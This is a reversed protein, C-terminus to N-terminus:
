CHSAQQPLGGGHIEKRLRFGAAGATFRKARGPVPLGRRSDRQAAPVLLGRRSDRQAASVPLGRRSDRQVASVPLGATFRKACGSGAAGATFRKCLRFGAAGATFRKARLGSGAVGGHIEQVASVPLAGRRCLGAWRRASFPRLDNKANQPCFRKIKCFRCLIIYFSDTRRHTPIASSASEFDTPPLM